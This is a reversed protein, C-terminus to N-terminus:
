SFRNQVVQRLMQELAKALQHELRVFEKLDTAKHLQADIHQISQAIEQRSGTPPLQNM